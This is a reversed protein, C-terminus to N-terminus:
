EGKVCFYLGAEVLETYKLIRAYTDVLDDSKEPKEPLKIDCRVPIKVEKYVISPEACGALLIVSIIAVLFHM